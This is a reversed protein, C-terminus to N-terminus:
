GRGVAAPAPVAPPPYQGKSEVTGDAAVLFFAPTAAVEFASLVPGPMDEVVLHEVPELAATLAGADDGPRRDLVTVVTLGSERFEATRAAFGPAERSCATCSTAFFAVLTRRGAAAVEVERGGATRATVAPAAAGVAPGGADYAPAAPAQERLRRVLGATVTLNFLLVVALVCVAATLVAM